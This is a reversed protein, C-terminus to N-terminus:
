YWDIAKDRRMEVMALYQDDCFRDTMGALYTAVSREIGWRKIWTIVRDPLRDPHSVLLNYLQRLRTAARQRVDVLSPHRYVNEFLFRELEKKEEDLEPSMRLLVRAKRAGWSDMGDIERLLKSSYELFDGMQLDILSHVLLPRQLHPDMQDLPIPAKSSVYAKAREVLRLGNLQKPVLLGLKLADDVDHSDYAISDAADVVQIELMQTEADKKSRFLM